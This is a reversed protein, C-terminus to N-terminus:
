VQLYIQNGILAGEATLSRPEVVPATPNSKRAVQTARDATEQLAARANAMVKSLEEKTNTTSGSTHGVAQKPMGWACWVVQGERNFLTNIGKYQLDEM